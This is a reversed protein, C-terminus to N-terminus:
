RTKNVRLQRRLQQALNNKADKQPDNRGNERFTTAVLNLTDAVTTEALPGDNQRSFQGQPIALVLAGMIKIKQQRSM